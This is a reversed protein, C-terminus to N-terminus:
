CICLFPLEHTVQLSGIGSSAILLMCSVAFPSDPAALVSSYYQWLGRFHTALKDCLMHSDCECAVRLLQQMHEFLPLQKGALEREM